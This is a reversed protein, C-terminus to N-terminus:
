TGAAGVAVCALATTWASGGVTGALADVALDIVGVAAAAPDDALWWRM